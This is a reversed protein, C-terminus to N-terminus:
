FWPSDKPSVVDRLFRRHIEGGREIRAAREASIVGEGPLEYIIQPDRRRRREGRAYANALAVSRFDRVVRTGDPERSVVYVKM